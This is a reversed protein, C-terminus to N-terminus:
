VKTPTISQIHHSIQETILDWSYHTEAYERAKKGMETCLTQDDLIRLIAKSLGSIDGPPVLIGFGADEIEELGPVGSAVIPKGCAAYDRIKLPSLSKDDSWSGRPRFPATCVRCQNIFLPADQYPLSGVMEVQKEIGLTNIQGRLASEEPGSGAIALKAEPKVSLVKAFAEILWELGQWQAFNGIFGVDYCPLIDLPYFHRINTGNGIVAIKEEKVGLSILYSKIGQSVTRVLDSAHASWRQLEKGIFAILKPKGSSIAEPGIWGNHETIIKIHRGMLARSAIVYLGSVIGLRSYIIDPNMEKLHYLFYPIALGGKIFMTYTTQANVFTEFFGIDPSLLSRIAPSGNLSLHYITVHYGIRFLSNAVESFHILEADPKEMAFCAVMLIKTNM